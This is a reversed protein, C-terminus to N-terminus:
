AGAAPAIAGAAVHFRAARDGLATFLSEDTGTMMTQAGLGDLTEYLAARRAPDLHAAVEDLLLIPAEGTMRAVLAAHGLVIGILLAKQEGTSALAAPMDKDVHTVELDARHPGVLARGAARDRARGQALRAAFADADADDTEGTLSLSARPFDAGQRERVAQQANLRVLLELRAKTLASGHEAMEREVADFWSPDGVGDEFMRNRQRMAREYANARRGHAPFLALALRDAFRRRDSASGTFLGDMAPTLWLVRVIATLDDPRAEAGNVRVQRSSAGAALGTGIASEEGARELRAHVTWGGSGGQRAMDAFTARRLGRGPSLLSVAELVNTKGAGNPGCLVIHAADAALGAAAYNRFDTLQLRTLRAPAPDEAV